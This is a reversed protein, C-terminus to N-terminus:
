AWACCQYVMHDPALARVCKGARITTKTMLILNVGEQVEFDTSIDECSIFVFFKNFHGLTTWGVCFLTLMCGAAKLESNPIPHLVSPVQLQPVPKM